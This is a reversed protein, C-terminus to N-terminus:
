ERPQGCVACDPGPDIGGDPTHDFATGCSAVRAAHADLHPGISHEFADLDRGLTTPPHSRHAGNEHHLLHHSHSRTSPHLRTM